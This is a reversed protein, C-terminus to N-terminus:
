SGHPLSVSGQYKPDQLIADLTAQDCVVDIPFPQNLTPDADTVAVWSAVPHDDPLAPRYPDAYTGTGKWGTTIRSSSMADGRGADADAVNQGSGSDTACHAKNSQVDWTGNRNTWGGGVDMTHSPLGTGDADTFTDYLLVTAGSGGVGLTGLMTM